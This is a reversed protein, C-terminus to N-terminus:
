EPLLTMNRYVENTMVRVQAHPRVVTDGTLLGARRGYQAALQGFRQNTLARLPSTYAASAGQQLAQWIAADAVLSKGSGTPAVVVVSTGPTALAQLAACQYAALAFPLRAAFPSFIEPISPDPPIVAM